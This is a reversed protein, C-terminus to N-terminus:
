ASMLRALEGDTPFCRVRYREPYLGLPEMRDGMVDLVRDWAIRGVPRLGRDANGQVFYIADVQPLLTPVGQTWAVASRGIRVEHM